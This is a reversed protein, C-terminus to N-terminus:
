EAGQRLRLYFWWGGSGLSRARKPATRFTAAGHYDELSKRSGLELETRWRKAGSGRCSVKKGIEGAQHRGAGVPRTRKGQEDVLSRAELRRECVAVSGVGVARRNAADGIGRTKRM